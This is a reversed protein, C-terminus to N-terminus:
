GAASAMGAPAGAGLAGAERGTPRILGEAGALAGARLERALLRHREFPGPMALSAAPEAAFGFRGYYGPDGVLVIAGHGRSEAEAVAQAMLASGLGLGAAHPAVALPGLLLAPVDAGGAMGAAVSWLRVTGVPAGTGDRAVLALGEAPLRGRRIAESAKRRRGPGMAADLLAERAAVDAEKEAGLTFVPASLPLAMGLAHTLPLSFATM